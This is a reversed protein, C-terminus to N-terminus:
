CTGPLAPGSPMLFGALRMIELTRKVPASPALLILYNGSTRLKKQLRILFGVGTSDLFETCSMELLCHRGDESIQELLTNDNRVSVIDFRPPLKIWQWAAETRM